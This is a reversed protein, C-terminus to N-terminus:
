LMDVSREAVSAGDEEETRVASLASGFKQDFSSKMLCFVVVGLALFYLSGAGGPSDIKPINELVAFYNLRLHM